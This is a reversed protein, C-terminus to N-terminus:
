AFGPKANDPVVEKIFEDIIIFDNGNGHIKTFEIM